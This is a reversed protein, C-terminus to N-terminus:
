LIGYIIVQKNGSLDVHTNDTFTVLCRYSTNRDKMGAFYQQSLAIDQYLISTNYSSTRNKSYIGQMIVGSYNEISDALVNGSANGGQSFDGLLVLGLDTIKSTGYVYGAYEKGVVDYVWLKVFDSVPLIALSKSITIEHYNNLAKKGSTYDYINGSFGSSVAQSIYTSSPVFSQGVSDAHEVTPTYGTLTGDYTADLWPYSSGGSGSVDVIAESILTTDYTGNETITQSGQAVLAGDDVVKGEDSATYTNPVAVVVSNNETTDVTGNANINKSTQAKLSGNSVVKGEDSATYSNPVNVDASAYDKVDIGTGNATISKTGTPEIYFDDIVAAMESPKYTTEEGNVSRIADGINELYEETVIVRAM